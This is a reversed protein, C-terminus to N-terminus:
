PKDGDQGVMDIRALKSGGKWLLLTPGAARAAPCPTGEVTAGAARRDGFALRPATRQDDVDDLLDSSTSRSSGMCAMCGHSCSIRGGSVAGAKLHWTKPRTGNAASRQIYCPCVHYLVSCPRRVERQERYGRLYLQFYIRLVIDEASEIGLVALPDTM